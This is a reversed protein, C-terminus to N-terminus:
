QAQSLETPYLHECMSLLGSDELAQEFLDGELHLASGTPAIRLPTQRAPVCTRLFHQALETYEIPELKAAQIKHIHEALDM